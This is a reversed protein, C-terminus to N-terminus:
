IHNQKVEAGCVCAANVGAAAKANPQTKLIFYSIAMRTHDEGCDWSIAIEICQGKIQGNILLETFDSQHFM